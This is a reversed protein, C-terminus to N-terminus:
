SQTHTINTTTLVLYSKVFNEHPINEFIYNQYLVSGFFFSPCKVFFFCFEAIEQEKREWQCTKQFCLPTILDKRKISCKAFCQLNDHKRVRISGPTISAHISVNKDSSGGTEGWGPSRNTTPKRRAGCDRAIEAPNWRASLQQGALNSSAIQNGTVTPGPVSSIKVEPTGLGRSSWRRLGPMM